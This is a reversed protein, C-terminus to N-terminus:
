EKLLWWILGIILVVAVFSLWQPVEVTGIVVQWGILARALHLLGAISLLVVAVIVSNKAM